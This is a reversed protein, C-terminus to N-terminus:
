AVRPPATCRRDGCAPGRTRTDRFVGVIVRCPEIECGDEILLIEPQEDMAHREKHM